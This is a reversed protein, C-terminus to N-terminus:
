GGLPTKRPVGVRRPYDEPTDSTKTMIVLCRRKAPLEPLFKVEIVEFLEAGLMKAAKSGAELEEKDPLAKMAVFSGGKEVLPLCYETLTPLAAVARATAVASKGRYLPERGVVEARENVIETDDLPLEEVVRELFLTKKGTAELLTLALSPQAIKLPIGPLGAGSGVDVLSSARRVPECLLCSLSDLVHDLVLRRLDRTGVVNAGRYDKLIVAYRHLDEFAGNDLGLGWAGSQRKLLEIEEM